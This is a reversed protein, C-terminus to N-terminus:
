AQRQNRQRYTINIVGAGATFATGGSAFDVTLTDTDDFYSDAGGTVTFAVSKGVPTTDALVLTRTAAVTSAGKLVRFTRSASAGTGAVQTIFEVKEISYQFGRVLDTAIEVAGTGTPLPFYLSLSGRTFGYPASRPM